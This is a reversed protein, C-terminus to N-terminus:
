SRGSSVRSDGKRLQELEQSESFNPRGRMAFLCYIHFRAIRENCEVALPGNDNQITFDQRVARTRDRLFPHAHDLLPDQALIVHFLYDLTKQDLL